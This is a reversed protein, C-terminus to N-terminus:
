RIRQRSLVTAHNDRVKTSGRTCESTADTLRRRCRGSGTSRELLVRRELELVASGRTAFRVFRAAELKCVLEYITYSAYTAIARFPRSPGVISLLVLGPFARLAKIEHGFIM